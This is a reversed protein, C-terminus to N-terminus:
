DIWDPSGGLRGVDKVPMAASEAQKRTLTDEESRDFEPPDTPGKGPAVNAVGRHARSDPM